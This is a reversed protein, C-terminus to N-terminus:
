EGGKDRKLPCWKPSKKIPIVGKSNVFGLCGEYKHIKHERFYQRIYEKDPHECMVTKTTNGYRQYEKKYPCEKCIM